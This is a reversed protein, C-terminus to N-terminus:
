SQFVGWISKFTEVQDKEALQTVTLNKGDCGRALCNVQKFQDLLLFNYFDCENANNYCDYSIMTVCFIWALVVLRQDWDDLLEPKEEGEM